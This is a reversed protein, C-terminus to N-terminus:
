TWISGVIGVAILWLSSSLILNGITYATSKKQRSEDIEEVTQSVIFLICLLLGFLGTQWLATAIEPLTM